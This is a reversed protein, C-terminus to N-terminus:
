SNTDLIFGKNEEIDRNLIEDINKDINELIKRMGESPITRLLENTVKDTVEIYSTSSDQDIEVAISTGLMSRIVSELSKQSNQDITTFNEHAKKAAKGTLTIVNESDTKAIVSPYGATLAELGSPKLAPAPIPQPNQRIASGDTILVSDM